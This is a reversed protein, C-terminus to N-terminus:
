RTTRRARRPSRPLATFGILFRLGAGMRDPSKRAGRRPTRLKSSASDSRAKRGRLSIAAQSEACVLTTDWRPMRCGSAPSSAVSNGVKHMMERHIRKFLWMVVHRSWGRACTFLDTRHHVRLAPGSIASSVRIPTFTFSSSTIPSIGGRQQERAIHVYQCSKVVSPWARDAIVLDLVWGLGIDSM